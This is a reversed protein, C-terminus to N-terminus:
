FKCMAQKYVYLYHQYTEVFYYNRQTLFEGRFIALSLRFM